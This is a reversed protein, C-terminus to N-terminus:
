FCSHFITTLLVVAFSWTQQSNTWGCSILETPQTPTPIARFSLSSNASTLLINSPSTGSLVTGASPLPRPGALQRESTHSANSFQTVTLTKVSQVLVTTTRLGDTPVAVSLIAEDSSTVTPATDSVSRSPTTEPEAPDGSPDALCGVSGTATLSGIKLEFSNFGSLTLIQAVTASLAVTLTILTSSPRMKVTSTSIWTMENSILKVVACRQSTVFIYANDWLWTSFPGDASCNCSADSRIRMSGNGAGGIVVDLMVHM